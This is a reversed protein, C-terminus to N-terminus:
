SGPKKRVAACLESVEPGPAPGKRALNGVLPYGDKDCLPRFHAVNALADATKTDALETRLAVLKPDEIAADVAGATTAASPRAPMAASASPPPDPLAGAKTCAATGVFAVALIKTTTLARRRMPM